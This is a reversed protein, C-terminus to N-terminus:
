LYLTLSLGLMGIQAQLHHWKFKPLYKINWVDDHYYNGKKGGITTASLTEAVLKAVKKDKFEVWGEEYNIRKNGGFKVRRAHSKPDEPSLFIRGIEGFRSLLFKVKQPRMFPPLRSLYVVGTRKVAERSAKLQSPTLPTLQHPSTIIDSDMTAEKPTPELPSSNKKTTFKATEDIRIPEGSGEGRDEKGEESENGEYESDEEGSWQGEDTSDDGSGEDEDNNAGGSEESCDIKQRKIRAKRGEDYSSANLNCGHNDLEKARREPM